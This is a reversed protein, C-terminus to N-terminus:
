NVTNGTVETCGFGRNNKQCLRFFYTSVEVTIPTPLRIGVIKVMIAKQKVGIIEGGTASNEIILFHIFEYNSHTTKHM